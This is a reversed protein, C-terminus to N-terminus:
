CVGISLCAYRDFSELPITGKEGFCRQMDSIISAERDESHIAESPYGYSQGASMYFM